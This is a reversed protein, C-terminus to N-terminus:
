PALIEPDGPRHFALFDKLNLTFFRKAGAERAAVLHLFDYIAGGRVGRAEAEDFARLQADGDLSVCNIRPVLHHRLLKSAEAAPLRFGLRGGTLTSFSEALGHAFVVHRGSMVLARCAEHDPDGGCLAAVLISADLASKM